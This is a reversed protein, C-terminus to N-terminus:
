ALAVDGIGFQVLAATLHRPTSAATVGTVSALGLVAALPYARRLADLPEPGRSEPNGFVIVVTRASNEVLPLPSWGFPPSFRLTSMWM